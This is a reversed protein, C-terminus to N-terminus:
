IEELFKETDQYETPFEDDLSIEDESFDYEPTRNVLTLALSAALVGSVAIGPLWSKRSPLDLPNLPGEAAPVNRKIFEEFKDSM